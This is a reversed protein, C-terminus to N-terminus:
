PELSKNAVSRAPERAARYVCVRSKGLRKAQYLAQDAMQLFASPTAPRHEKLSAVGASMGPKPEVALLKAQQGFLRVVREAVKAAMAATSAPLVLLFEDGGYRIALDAERVCQSLLEGAFRILEDGAKHGLTDNLSKFDDVDIMILALDEGTERCQAFLQAFKDDLLRRNGLRTLPDIWAKREVQRLKLTVKHTQSEVRRELSAELCAARERWEDTGRNADELLQALSAIEDPPDAPLLGRPTDGRGIRVLMKLPELLSYRLLFLGMAIGAASIALV